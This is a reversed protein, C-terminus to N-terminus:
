ADLSELNKRVTVTSPHDEGLRERFIRLAREYHARAGALDGLAQLVSGLNNVDRAVRPHDADYTAEDIKLARELARKAEAFEAREKLYLGVQNLLRGTTEPAIQLAESHETAALAHFLLRSCVPWTQVDDSNFPFAQNVFRVAADALKKQDDKQLRDRAVAQVLQHIYLADGIVEILSYRRLVAVADDVMVPNMVVVALSPPLHQAGESLLERPIDDPALFACVNLLDAAAPSMMQVQQFSIEWTTAVTAPYEPSLAGRSLLEEQHARFLDLYGALSRATQEIYAGAQALALPLDDLADALADAATQDAQKTRNLLFNISEAREFKRVPLTSVVGGWNPNRTTIIVHGTAGQPLYDGISAPEPVNDFILLWGTHQGLWLRVAEVVIRQDALDKQPLGRAHAFSAYDAALAAPEEARVWWVVDYDAVHCYAHEVALQTKGVGGLGHIAQTLAAPQGSTLAAQLDALLSDRGTFNPNRHHPVNWIPPLAGPFRPREPVSRSTATPFSPAIEPKARGRRVGDLLAQKAAEEDLGVLDIYIIQPLLGKLDCERVRVPVLTGKKGTPDQAFAAAWEPQTFRSTLYDPSLVAVTRAADAAARQMELVFNSGPRFDWAQLVTTYNAEELQWAIWAAWARDASNHSVFFDTM